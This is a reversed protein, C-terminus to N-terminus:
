HLVEIGLAKSYIGLEGHDGEGTVGTFKNHHTVTDLGGDRDVEQQIRVRRHPWQSGSQSFFHRFHASLPRLVDLRFLSM